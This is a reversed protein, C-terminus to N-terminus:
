DPPCIVKVAEIAACLEKFQELGFHVWTAGSADRTKLTFGYGSIDDFTILGDETYPSVIEIRMGHRSGGLIM